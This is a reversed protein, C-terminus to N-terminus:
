SRLFRRGFTGAAIFGSFLMALMSPEPVPAPTESGVYGTFGSGNAEHGAFLDSGPGGNKNASVLKFDALTLGTGSLTFSFTCGASAAGGSVSCDSGSSGGTKGTSFNYDFKGWGDENGLGGLSPSSVEGSSSLLSLNLLSGTGQTGTAGSEANFGFTDFVYGNNLSTVTFTASTGGTNIDLSVSACPSASSCPVSSTNSGSMLWSQTSDASATVVALMSFCFLVAGVCSFKMHRM